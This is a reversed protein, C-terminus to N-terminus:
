EADDEREEEPGDAMDREDEEIQLLMRDVDDEDFEENCHPCDPDLPELEAGSPEWCREPPGYTCGKDPPTYWVWM